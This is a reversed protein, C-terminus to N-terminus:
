WDKEVKVKRLKSRRMEEVLRLRRAAAELMEALPEDKKEDGKGAAGQQEPPQEDGSESEGDQGGSPQQEDGESQDQEGEAGDSEPQEQDQEGQEGGSPNEQSSDDGEQEDSGSPDQQEGDDEGTDDGDKGSQEPDSQDHKELEEELFRRVRQAVQLNHAADRDSPTGRVRDRLASIADRAHSLGTRATTARIAREMDARGEPSMPGGGQAGSRAVTEAIRAPDGLLDAAAHADFLHSTGLNYLASARVQEAHAGDGAAALASRYAARAEDPRQARSFAVGLDYQLTAREADPTEADPDRAVKELLSVARPADGEDLAAIAEGIQDRLTERAEGASAAPALAALCLLFPLARKM